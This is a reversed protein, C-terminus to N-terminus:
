KSNLYTVVQKTVNLSSDAFMFSGSGAPNFVYKFNNEKGFLFVKSNIDENLLSRYHLTSDSITKLSAEKKTKFELKLLYLAKLDNQIIETKKLQQAEISKSIDTIQEEIKLLSNTSENELLKLREEYQQALKYEKNIVNIDIYGTKFQDNNCSTLILTSSILITLRIQFYNIFLRSNSMFLVQKMPELSNLIILKM